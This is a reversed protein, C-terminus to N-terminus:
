LFRHKSIIIMSSASYFTYWKGEQAWPPELAHFLIISLKIILILLLGITHNDVQVQLSSLPASPCVYLWLSQSRQMTAPIQVLKYDHLSSKKRKKRWSREKGRWEGRWEEMHTQISSTSNQPELYSLIHFSVSFAQFGLALWCM